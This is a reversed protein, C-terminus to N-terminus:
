FCSFQSNNLNDRIKERNEDKLKNVNKCERFVIEKSKTGAPKAGFGGNKIRRLAISVNGVPVKVIPQHRHTEPCTKLLVKHFAVV